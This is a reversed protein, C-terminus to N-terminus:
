EVDNSQNNYVTFKRSRIEPIFRLDTHSFSLDTGIGIGSVKTDAVVVKQNSHFVRLTKTNEKLITPSFTIEVSYSGGAEIVTDRFPYTTLFPKDSKDFFEINNLRLPVPDENKLLLINNSISSGLCVEGFEINPSYFSINRPLGRSELKVYLNQACTSFELSDVIAGTDIPNYEINFTYCDGPWVTDPLSLNLLKFNKNRILHADKMLFPVNGNNCFNTTFTYPNSTGIYKDDIKINQVTILPYEISIPEDIEDIESYSFTLVKFLNNAQSIAALSHGETAFCYNDLVSESLSFKEVITPSSLDTFMVQPQTISARITKNSTPNFDMGLANSSHERYTRVLMGSSIEYIYTGSIPDAFSYENLTPNPMITSFSIYKGNPSLAVKSILKLSKFDFSSTIQNTNLDYIRISNDQFALVLSDTGSVFSYDIIPTDFVLDKIFEGNIPSYLKILNSSEPLISIWRKQYDILMKSIRVGLKLGVKLFPEYNGVNFFALTDQRNRYPINLYRFATVFTKHDDTYGVFLNQLNDIPPLEYYAGIIYPESRTPPTQTLDWEYIKGAVNSGLIFLANESFRCQEFPIDDFGLIKDPLTQPDQRVRVLFNNTIIDPITWVIMSDKSQTIPIWTAGGNLSYDAKTMIGPVNGKWKITDKQCPTLHEGLKPELLTLITKSPIKYSNAILNVEETLGGEYFVTLKDRYLKNESGSFKIFIGYTFGDVAEFPLTWSSSESGGYWIAKFDETYTKISDIRVTSSISIGDVIRQPAMIVKLDVRVDFTGGIDPTNFFFDKQIEGTSPFIRVQSMYNILSDYYEANVATESDDSLYFVAGDYLAGLTCYWHVKQSGDPNDVVQIPRSSNNNEVIVLNDHTINVKIGNREAMMNVSCIPYKSCDIKDFTNIVLQSFSDLSSILFVSIIILLKFIGWNKM